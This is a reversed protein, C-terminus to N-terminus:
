NPLLIYGNHTALGIATWVMANMCDGLILGLFFPLLKRYLGIGGYRLVPVKLMWGILLSFWLMYMAWSSAVVFGAPHIPFSPIWTRCLFLVLVLAAGGAMHLMAGTNPAVPNDLRTTTWQFPLEPCWIYMFPNKMGTGGGHTYPLWISSIASVITAFVVCVGLARVLSRPNLRVENSAQYSNLLSPMMFERPDQWGVHEAISSMALSQPNFTNSGLFVTMIQSAVFTHTVFLLGAQAVLWSLMLFVIFAGTLIGFAMVPQVDAVATLWVFMGVFSVIAGFVAFRYSTPEASDDVSKDNFLAKRWVSRLHARMSYLLWVGMMLVGGTEHYTVFAPGMSYGVGTTSMDWNYMTGLLVQAKFLLYFLWLSLCVEGPLLYAFGIILPYIAIQIDNVSNWPATTLWDQSHWLLPIDPVTPFFLHIGKVTHIATVLGVALWLLPSRLLTNFKYGPSPEEALLVPLQVLPFSFKENEAWQRRVITSLSFFGVFLFAIFVGWWALPGYWAHWPIPQGRHLGEFFGTVAVPDSVFLKSPLHSIIKADWGNVPTAYYHPAVLHPIFYRMLGSSPIGVTVLMMTWVTMIEPATWIQKRRGLAILLPNILLVILLMGALASIPFFNGSLYTAAVYYDNYPLIACILMSLAIGLAFARPTVGAAKSPAAEPAGQIRFVGETPRGLRTAAVNKREQATQAM